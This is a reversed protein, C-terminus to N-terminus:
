ATFAAAAVASPPAHRRVFDILASNFADNRDGAVMHGADPVDGTELHPLQARLSEVGEASVVDSQAGRVLLVPPQVRPAAAAMRQRIEQVRANRRAADTDIFRPDWHWRWRGDPGLRLNKALGQSDRPRPRAPNYAAVADAAEALSAFGEPRATMFAMIRQVGADELRPVVDVLVLAHLLGNHEGEAILATHGGMSAGVAAPRLMTGGALTAIVARLDGTLADVGYAGEPAWGSDGHGRADLAIARWGEGALDLLARRWSHRTQGGGHLLLVPRAHAPGAADGVLPVGGLGIFEVREITPLAKASRTM